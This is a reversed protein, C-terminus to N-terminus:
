KPLPPIPPNCVNHYSSHAPATNPSCRHRLSGPPRLTPPFPANKYHFHRKPKSVHFAVCHCLTGKICRMQFVVGLRLGRLVYGETDSTEPDRTGSTSCPGGMALVSGCMVVWLEICCGWGAWPCSLAGLAWRAGCFGLRPSCVDSQATSILVPSIVASPSPEPTFCCLKPTRPTPGATLHPVQWDCIPNNEM